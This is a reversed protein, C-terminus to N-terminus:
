QLSQFANSRVLVAFPQRNELIRLIHNLQPLANRLRQPFAGADVTKKQPPMPKISPTRAQLFGLAMNFDQLEQHFHQNAGAGRLTPSERAPQVQSNLAM